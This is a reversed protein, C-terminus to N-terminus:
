VRDSSIQTDKLATEGKIYDENEQQICELAYFAAEIDDTLPTSPTLPIEDLLHIGDGNDAAQWSKIYDELGERFRCEESWAAKFADFSGKEELIEKM